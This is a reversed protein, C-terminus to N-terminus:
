PQFETLMKELEYAWRRTSQAMYKKGVEVRVSFCGEYSVGDISTDMQILDATEIAPDSKFLSGCFTSPHYRKARENEYFLCFVKRRCKDAAPPNSM